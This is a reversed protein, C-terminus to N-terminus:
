QLHKVKSYFLNTEEQIYDPLLHSECINKLGNWSNKIATDVKHQKDITGGTIWAVFIHIPLKLAMEEAKIRFDNDFKRLAEEKILDDITKRVQSM